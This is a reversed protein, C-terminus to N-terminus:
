KSVQCRKNRKEKPYEDMFLTAYGLEAFDEVFFTNFETSYVKDLGETENFIAIANRESNIHILEEKRTQFDKKSLTTLQQEKIAQNEIYRLKVEVRNEITESETYILLANDNVLEVRIYKENLEEKITKKM